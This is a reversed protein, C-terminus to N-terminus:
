CNTNSFFPNSGQRNGGGKNYGKEMDKSISFEFRYSRCIVMTSIQHKLKCKINGVKM